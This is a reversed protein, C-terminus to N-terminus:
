ERPLQMLVSNIVGGDIAINQGTIYAAADSALFMACEAVDDASGLRGLPVANGRLERIAPNRLFPASMGADIFGPAMSNVRIGYEGWEMSMQRTLCVVGAKAAAYAGCLTSPNIANISALNVIAGGGNDKMRGAVIRSVIFVSVLNVQVVRRFDDVAHDLLPGTRLIGANNILLKPTEGLREVAKEVQEPDTVDAALAVGEIPDAVARAEALDLDLVGVRYGHRAAHEAMCAGLGHAAGTVLATAM